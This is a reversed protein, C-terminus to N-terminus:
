QDLFIELHTSGSDYDSVVELEGRDKFTVKAPRGDIEARYTGRPPLCLRSLTAKWLVGGEEERYRTAETQISYPRGLLEKTAGFNGQQLLSRIRSSSVPSGGVSVSPIYELSFREKEAVKALVERNGQRQHGIVADHGLILYTFPISERLSAIFAEAPLLSLEETFPILITTQIGFHKLLSLKHSTTHLFCAPPFPRLIDSPHNSFTLVVSHSHNRLGKLIAQHGLHVGDFTGISLAIAKEQGPTFDKYSLLTQM